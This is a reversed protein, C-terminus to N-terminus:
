SDTKDDPTPQKNQNQNQGSDPLSETATEEQVDGSFQRRLSEVFGPNSMQMRQALQQGMQLLADINPNEGETNSNLIGSMVNRVGPDNLMQSAVNLFNANNIFQSIDVPRHEPPNAMESVCKEEALKLNARYRENTPDLTIATRFANRADDHLHILSYANGLRSYAKAYNPDIRIAKKCDNIVAHYKEMHSYAAARNSYLVANNPHLEVAKTYEDVAEQYLGQRMYENGKNKHIEARTKEEETVAVDLTDDSILTLLDFDEDKKLAEPEIAYASELCQIAVDLSEKRESEVYSSNSEKKLFNIIGIILRQKNGDIFDDM